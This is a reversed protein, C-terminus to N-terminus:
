PEFPPLGLSHSPQTASPEDQTHIECLLQPWPGYEPATESHLEYQQWHGTYRASVIPSGIVPLAGRRLVIAVAPRKKSRLAGAQRLTIESASSPCSGAALAVGAVVVAGSPTGGTAELSSSSGGGTCM